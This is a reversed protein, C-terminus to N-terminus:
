KALHKALAGVITQAPFPRGGSRPPAPEYVGPGYLVEVGFSRLVDVSRRFAPHSEQAQNLAPAAVVPIGMGPAETILGLALTNAMGAAWANITNFTAPCVAMADAPPLMDPEGPKKYESRVPFGTLEEIIPVDLFGLGSPTAIVAVRWGADHLLSVLHPTQATRPTGCVILYLLPGPGTADHPSV